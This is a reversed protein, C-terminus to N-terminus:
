FLWLRKKRLSKVKALKGLVLCKILYDVRGENLAFQALKPPTAASVRQTLIYRDREVDWGIWFNNSKQPNPKPWTYRIADGALALASGDPASLWKSFKPGEVPTLIPAVTSSKLRLADPLSDNASEFKDWLEQVRSAASPKPSQNSTPSPVEAARRKLEKEKWSM